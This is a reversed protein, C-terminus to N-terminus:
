RTLFHLCAYHGWEPGDDLGPLKKGGDRSVREGFGDRIRQYSRHGLSSYRERRGTSSLRSWSGSPARGINTSVQKGNGTRQVQAELWESQVDPGLKAIWRGLSTTASGISQGDSLEGAIEDHTYGVNRFSKLISWTAMYTSACAVGQQLSKGLIWPDVAHWVPKSGVQARGVQTQRLTYFPIEKKAFGDTANSRM